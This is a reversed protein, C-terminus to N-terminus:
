NLIPRIGKSSLVVRRKARRRNRLMAPAHWASAVPFLQGALLYLGVRGHCRRIKGAKTTKVIQM